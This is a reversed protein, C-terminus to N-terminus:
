SSMVKKLVLIMKRMMGRMKVKRSYKVERTHVAGVGKKLERRLLQLIMNVENREMLHSMDEKLDGKANKRVM